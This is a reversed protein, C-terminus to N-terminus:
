SVVQTGKNEKIKRPRSSWAYGHAEMEKRAQTPDILVIRGARRASVIGRKIHDHLHQPAMGLLKAAEQATTIM